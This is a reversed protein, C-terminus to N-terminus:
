LREPYGAVTQIAAYLPALRAYMSKYVRAYLGDYLAVRAPDPAFVRAVRTMAATAADFDRHLGLGVAAAIAAGLGATEYTHPRKVPLNFVDATIQMAGDSQSGGGSVRLEALPAGTKRAIREAGERMAYALGEIIARYLHARTHVDGFGVIAGKSAAPPYRVGPTWYPQLTLGLAGAPTTDLFEEFLCEAAVGRREAEAKEIAALEDRFWSVLWYGRFIQIESDFFGPTASPYSPALRIAEVYRPSRVAVTATTGYSLGGVDVGACGSGLLGSAKDAAAAVVPLGAPVGTAAAAEDTIAGLVAGVPALEPMQEPRLSLANWKWDGSAAWRQRKYDFPIYGVQAGVSDVCRGTLRWHLYGSLLLFKALRQAVDPRNEALWAAEAERTFRRMVGEAAGITQAVRWKLPLRPAAAARRQDLWTMAPALAAGHADTPVVTARQTTLAVGALRERVGPAADWLRRCAYALTAWVAEAEIEHWGPKPARYADLPAQGKGILEGALDFALARASQTGVDIALVVDKGGEM